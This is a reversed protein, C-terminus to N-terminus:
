RGIRGKWSFHGRPDRILERMVEMDPQGKGSELEVAEVGLKAYKVANKADGLMNYNMALLTYAGGLNGELREEKYLKMLREMMKKTVGRSSVDGLKGEISKIEELRKDSKKIEKQSLSCQSCSCEFGWTAKAREQRKDRPELSDLYSIVLEEGEKVDRVVTSVHTLTKQDIRFAVNPRCDHNFRSVEPFNGYHHGDKGGLDMQFSNTALISLIKDGPFHSMQALFADRLTKPLHSIARKLLPSQIQPSAQEFFTRHILIAPSKTMINDGRHLTRNSLLGIGKGPIKSIIFPPSPQESSSKPIAKELVKFKKINAPTTIVVMGRGNGFGLNKFICFKGSCQDTAEWKSPPPPQPKTEKPTPSPSTHQDHDLRCTLETSSLPKWPCSNTSLFPKQIAVAASAWSLILVVRM